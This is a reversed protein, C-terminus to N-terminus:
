PYPAIQRLNIQFRPHNFVEDGWLGGFPGWLSLGGWEITAPTIENPTSRSLLIGSIKVIDGKKLEALADKNSNDPYLNSTEIIIEPNCPAKFKIDLSGKNIIDNYRLEEISVAWSKIMPKPTSLIKYIYKDRDSKIKDIQPRLQDQLNKQKLPNEEKLTEAWEGSLDSFKQAYDSFASCVKEQASGSPVSISQSADQQQTLQPTEENKYQIPEDKHHFQSIIWGIGLVIVAPFFLARFLSFIILAIVIAIILLFM